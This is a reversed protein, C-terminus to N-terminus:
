DEDLFDLNVPAGTEEKETPVTRQHLEIEEDEDEDFNWDITKAAEDVPQPEELENLEPVTAQKSSSKSAIIVSSDLEDALSSLEVEPIEDDPGAAIVQDPDTVQTAAPGSFDFTNEEEEEISDFRSQKKQSTQEATSQTNIENLFDLEEDPEEAFANGLMAVSFILNIM